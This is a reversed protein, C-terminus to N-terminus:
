PHTIIHLRTYMPLSLQTQLYNFSIYQLASGHIGHVSSFTTYTDDCGTMVFYAQRTLMSIQSSCYSALTIVNEITILIARAM